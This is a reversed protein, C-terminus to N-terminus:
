LAVGYDQCGSLMWRGERRLLTFANVGEHRPAGNIEVVFPAWVSAMDGHRRVQVDHLKEQITIGSKIM